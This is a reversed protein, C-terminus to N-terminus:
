FGRVFAFGAYNNREVEEKWKVILENLEKSNEEIAPDKMCKVLLAEKHEEYYLTCGPQYCHLKKEREGSKIAEAGLLGSFRDSAYGIHRPGIMYMHPVGITDIIFYNDSGEYDGKFKKEDM